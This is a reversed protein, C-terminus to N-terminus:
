EQIGCVKRDLIDGGAKETCQCGSLEIYTLDFKPVYCCTLNIESGCIAIKKPPNACKGEFLVRGKVCNCCSDNNETYIVTAKGSEVPAECCVPKDEALCACLPDRPLKTCFAERLSVGTAACQETKECKLGPTGSIVCPNPTLLLKNGSVSFILFFLVLTFTHNAFAM